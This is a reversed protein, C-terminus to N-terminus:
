HETDGHLDEGQVVETEESSVQAAWVTLALAMGAELGRQRGRGHGRLAGLPAAGHLIQHGSEVLHSTALSGSQQLYRHLCGVTHDFVHM